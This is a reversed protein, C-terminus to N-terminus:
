RAQSPDHGLLVILEEVIEKERRRLDGLIKDVVAISTTVAVRRRMRANRVSTFRMRRMRGDGGVATSQAVFEEIYERVFQSKSM